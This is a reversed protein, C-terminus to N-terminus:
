QIKNKFLGKVGTMLQNTKEKTMLKLDEMELKGKDILQLAGQKIDNLDLKGDEDVDLENKLKEFSKQSLKMFQDAREISKQILEVMNQITSFVVLLISQIMEKSFIMAEILETSKFLESEVFFGNLDTFNKFLEAFDINQSIDKLLDFATTLFESDKFFFTLIDTLIDQYENIFSMIGKINEIYQIFKKTDFEMIMDIIMEFLETIENFDIERITEMIESKIEFEKVLSILKKSDQLINEVIEKKELGKEKFFDLSSGIDAL